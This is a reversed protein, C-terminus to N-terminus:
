GNPKLLQELLSQALKLLAAKLLEGGIGGAVQHGDVTESTTSEVPHGQSECVQALRSLSEEDEPASGWGTTGEEDPLYRKSVYGAAYSACFYARALNGPSRLTSM